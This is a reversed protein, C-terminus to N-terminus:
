VKKDQENVFDYTVYGLNDILSFLVASHDDYSHFIDSKWVADGDLITDQNKIKYCVIIDYPEQSSQIEFDNCQVEEAVTDLITLINAVTSNDTVYKTKCQLLSLLTTAKNKNIKSNCTAVQWDM